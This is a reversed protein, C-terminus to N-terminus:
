VSAASKVGAHTSNGHPDAKHRCAMDQVKTDRVEPVM